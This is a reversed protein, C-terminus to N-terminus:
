PKLLGEPLPMADLAKAVKDTLDPVDKSYVITESTLVVAYGEENAIKAVADQIQSNVVNQGSKQKFTIKIKASEQESRLDENKKKLEAEIKEKDEKGIKEQGEKLQQEVKGIEASLSNMKAVADTQMRKVEEVIAKVKASQNYVKQLNLQALKGEAGASFGCFLLSLLFGAVLAPAAAVFRPIRMQLDKRLRTSDLYPGRRPRPQNPQAFGM